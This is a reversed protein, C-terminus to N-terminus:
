KGGFGYCQQSRQKTTENANKDAERGHKFTALMFTKKGVFEVCNKKKNIKSHKKKHKDKTVHSYPIAEM